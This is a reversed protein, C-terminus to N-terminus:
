VRSHEAKDGRRGKKKIEIKKKAAKHRYKHKYGGHAAERTGSGPRYKGCIQPLLAPAESKSEEGSRWRLKM